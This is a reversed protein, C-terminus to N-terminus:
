SVYKGAVIPTWLLCTVRFTVNCAEWEVQFPQASRLFPIHEGDKLILLSFLSLVGFQAQYCPGLDWIVVSLSLYWLPHGLAARSSPPACLVTDAEERGTIDLNHLKDNM